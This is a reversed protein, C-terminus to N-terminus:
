LTILRDCRKILYDMGQRERISIIGTGLSNGYYGNVIATPASRIWALLDAPDGAHLHMSCDNVFLADTENELASLFVGRIRRANEEALLLAEEENKARLRPPAIVGTFRRITSLSADSEPIEIGGGINTLHGRGVIDERDIQPALDILTLKEVGAGLFALLIKKTLTTKGSNIDGIILTFLGTYDYLQVSFEQM